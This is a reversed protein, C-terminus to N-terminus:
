EWGKCVDVWEGQPVLQELEEPSTKVVSDSTGCATYITDFRKLSIDFVVILEQPLLYPCVGGVKYGTAEQTAEPSLLRPRIGFVSRFKPNDLRADGAAVVLVPAEGGNVAMSKAIQAAEVGLAEAALEVTATSEEFVVVDKEKQFTKLYTLIQEM